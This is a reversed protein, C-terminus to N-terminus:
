LKIWIMGEVPDAPRTPSAVLVAAPHGNITVADPTLTDGDHDHASPTYSAPLGDLDEWEHRHSKAAYKEDYFGEGGITATADRGLYHLTKTDEAFYLRAGDGHPAVGSRPGVFPRASGPRHVGASEPAGENFFHEEDLTAELVAKDSRMQRAGDRVLSLDSPANKNWPSFTAM